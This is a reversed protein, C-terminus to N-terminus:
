YRPLTPLGPRASSLNQAQTRWRNAEVRAKRAARRHRGQSVWTAAAGAVVGLAAAIIAVAFLPAQLSFAANDTSGFPDFSVTVWHRNAFVFLLLILTVVTIILFRVFRIM